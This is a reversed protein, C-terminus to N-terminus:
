NKLMLLITLLWLQLLGKPAAGAGAIIPRILAALVGCFQAYNVWHPLPPPSISGLGAGFGRVRWQTWFNSFHYRNERDNM